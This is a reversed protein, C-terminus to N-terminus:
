RMAVLISSKVVPWPASGNPSFAMTRPSLQPDSLGQRKLQMLPVLGQPKRLLYLLDLSVERRLERDETTHLPYDNRELRMSPCCGQKM